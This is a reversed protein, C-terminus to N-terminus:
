GAHTTNTLRFLILHNISQLSLSTRSEWVRLPGFDHSYKATLQAMALVGSGLWFILMEMSRKGHYSRSENMTTETELVQTKFGGVIVGRM